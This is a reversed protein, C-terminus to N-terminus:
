TTALSVPNPLNMGASGFVATGEMPHSNVVLPSGSALVAGVADLPVPSTPEYGDEGVIRKRVGGVLQNYGANLIGRAHGAERYIIPVNIKWHIVGGESTLDASIEGTLCTGAALSHWIDSNRRWSKGLFPTLSVRRVTLQFTMDGVPGEPLPDYFDGAANRLPNGDADFFKPETLTSGGIRKDVKSLISGDWGSPRPRYTASIAFWFEEGQGGIKTVTASECYVDNDYDVEGMSGIEFIGASGYHPCDAWSAVTDTTDTASDCAVKFIRTFTNGAEASNSQQGEDAERFTEPKVSM